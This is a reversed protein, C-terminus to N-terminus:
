KKQFVVPLYTKQPADIVKFPASAAGGGCSASDYRIINNILMGYLDLDTRFTVTLCLTLSSGTLIDGDWTIRGAEVIAGNNTVWGGFNVEVPLEDTLVVSSATNEGQNSLVITYTIVSGLPIDDTPTVSVSGILDPPHLAFLALTPDHDTSRLADSFGINMHIIDVKASAALNPTAIIQDIASANGEYIYTYQEEAPLHATLNELDEGALSEVSTSFASANMDGLVLIKAHPDLTLLSVIFDHIVKTQQIREQETILYPPQYRGFLPQDGYPSNLHLAILFFRNGNFYFEATLPKRSDTFAPNQPEIRGPSFSLEPGTLGMVVSTPTTADGGPRNIFVLGRDARYLLAVRINGGSQGGDSNNVPDIQRYEYNPGGMNIIANVLTSLTLSAGVIGDNKSGSNDQIEQLAIIDPSLLHFVIEHALASFKLTDDDGDANNTDLNETNLTAVTLQDVTRTIWTTESILDGSTLSLAETNLLKFNGNSYDMVGVVPITLHDGMIAQPENPVLTDDIIIREPNLDDPQVVLAGLPSIVTANVGLDGVVVIEGKPPNNPAVALAENVQVRMCELSEFFDIGDTQPDFIGSDEVDGSDADDEIVNSPPIRGGSGIIVPPPLPNNSTLITVSPSILETLTLNTDDGGPRYESVVGAVQVDDGPMISPPSGTYVYIAESTTEDADSNPDQLYFGHQRVVTVIGQTYNIYQGLFPSLHAAGQIDHIPHFVPDSSTIRNSSALSSDVDAKVEGTLSCVILFGLIVM